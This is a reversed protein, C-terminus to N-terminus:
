APKGHKARRRAWGGALLTLLGTGALAFSSPEPVAVASPVRLDLFVPLHGGTTNGGVSDILAQAILPGVMQNNTTQIPGNFSAASGDNGWARYSHNPDNWTTTSYPQSFSGLYDVGQGDFLGDSLLIQDLRDDMGGAIGTPDQTHVYRYASNNNWSGPTRIPDNFRGLASGGALSTLSQYAAQASSQINYDGAVLFNYNSPLGQANARIRQTEILRRAQDETTSGSKLHVSYCALSTQTPDNVFGIDYRYTNRPQENAGAAGFAVITTSNYTIRSSRYFFASDSDPGNVFPAARWDGPSNPATNLISLFNTVSAASTFEQGILADPAMSQGNFQGYIATKFAADRGSSYDTVNWTAIRIAGAPAQAHAVGAAGAFASAASFAAVVVIRFARSSFSFGAAMM